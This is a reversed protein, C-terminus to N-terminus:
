AAYRVAAVMWWNMIGKCGREFDQRAGLDACFRESYRAIEDHHIQRKRKDTPLVEGIGMAVANDISDTRLLVDDSGKEDSEAVQEAKVIPIKCTKQKM